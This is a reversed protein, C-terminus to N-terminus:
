VLTLLHDKVPTQAVIVKRPGKPCMKTIKGIKVISYDSYDRNKRRNGVRRRGKGFWQASNWTCWYCCADGDSEHKM